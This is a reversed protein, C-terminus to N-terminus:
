KQSYIYRFNSATEVLQLSDQRRRSEPWPPLGFGSFPNIIWRLALFLM